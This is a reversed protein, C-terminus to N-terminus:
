RAMGSVPEPKSTRQNVSARLQLLLRIVEAKGSLAAYHLPRWGATDPKQVNRLGSHFFESVADADNDIPHVRQLNLQRRFGSFDSTKLCHMMKRLAINRMVPALKQRDEEKSFSGEGVPGTLFSTTGGAVDLCSSSQILIWTSDPSLERAAREVRCWGEKAPKLM